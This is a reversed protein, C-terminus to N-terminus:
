HMIQQPPLCHLAPVFTPAMNLTTPSHPDAGPIPQFHPQLPTFPGNTPSPSIYGIVSFPAFGAPTQEFGPQIIQPYTFTAPAYNIIGNPSENPTTPSGPYVTGNCNNNNNTVPGNSNNNTNSSNSINISHIPTYPALAATHTIFAPTAPQIFPTIMFHINCFRWRCTRIYKKDNFPQMIKRCQLM